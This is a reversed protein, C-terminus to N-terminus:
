LRYCIWTPLHPQWFIAEGRGKPQENNLQGKTQPICVCTMSNGSLYKYKRLVPEKRPIQPCYTSNAIGGMRFLSGNPLHTMLIVDDVVTCQWLSLFTINSHGWWVICHGEGASLILARLYMHTRWKLQGSGMVGEGHPGTSSGVYQFLCSYPPSEHLCTNLYDYFHMKGGLSCVQLRVRSKARTWM